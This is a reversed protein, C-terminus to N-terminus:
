ELSLRTIRGNPGVAWGANTNVFAVSWYSRREVVTWTAAQDYTVALGEPGVAVLVPRDTEPVYTGGFIGPLPFSPARTWTEGSDDTLAISTITSDPPNDTAMVGGMAAGHLRDRFAISAIGAFPAGAEVPTAFASWSRGRDTTKFVRATDAAGTGFYATSDGQTVLCTGSAPFSGEGDYAPPLGGPRIREWSEGGNTTKVLVFSGDVADSFALGHKTDWFDMCDFFANPEDNTFSRTWTNGGDTTKYIRSQNGEGISLLYATDASVAHVDRFQLSDAGPVAGAMWTSGGDTTRTYTGGTGSAWVVRESVPSM